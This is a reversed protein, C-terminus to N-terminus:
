LAARMSSRTTGTPDTPHGGSREYLPTQFELIKGLRRGLMSNNTATQIIAVAGTGFASIEVSCILNLEIEQPMEITPFIM